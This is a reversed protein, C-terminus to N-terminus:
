VDLSLDMTGYASETWIYSLHNHKSHAQPKLQIEDSTTRGTQYVFNLVKIHHFPWGQDVTTQGSDVHLM